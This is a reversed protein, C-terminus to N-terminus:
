EVAIIIHPAKILATIPDGVAIEMAGASELTISATLTKGAGIALTIESSAAGDERGCVVGRIQNRASTRLDEGKALVVFSAKILAIAPRGVTLGLAAISRATIVAAVEVGGGLDLVVEGNVEGRTLRAVVGRLPNRASTRMGLSWFLDGTPEGALAGELKQLAADIEGQVRHFADIVARGRVTVKAAGGTRGGPAAEVLPADFLNNLAQLADWAGQYSLGLRKAAATISGLDDVAEVLAIRELGVRAAAGRKLSLTATIDSRATQRNTM